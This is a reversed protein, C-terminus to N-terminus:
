APPLCLKQFLSEYGNLTNELSFDHLATHQGKKAVSKAMLPENHILQLLEALKEYQKPPYLWGNQGNSILDPNGSADTAVVPIGMAMAELLSQSLGEMLSPLVHVQMLPYLHLIDKGDLEGTFHLRHLGEDVRKLIDQDLDTRQIGAFLVETPFPILTLAQLLDEQNKRRAVCGITFRGEELGLKLRWSASIASDMGAYKESPTGNRIVTIIKPNIGIEELASSVGRSVAVVADAGKNYLFNQIFGGSSMPKQRRTHVIKVQPCFLWKAWIATYRDYSSQANIIDIEEKKAWDAIERSNRFDLKGRFTMPIRTVGSDELLSYLLSNRRCGLFIHHGRQALGKALMAISQTSGAMDGQYTLFLIRLSKM